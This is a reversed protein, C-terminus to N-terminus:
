SKIISNEQQLHGAQLTQTRSAPSFLGSVFSCGRAAQGPWSQSLFRTQDLFQRRHALYSIGPSRLLVVKVKVIALCYGGIMQQGLM